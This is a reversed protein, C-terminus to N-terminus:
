SKTQCNKGLFFFSNFVLFIIRVLSNRVEPSECNLLHGLLKVEFSTSYRKEVKLRREILLLVKLVQNRAIFDNMEDILMTRNKLSLGGGDISELGPLLLQNNENEDDVKNQRKNVELQALEDVLRTAQSISRDIFQNTLLNNALETELSNNRNKSPYKKSEYSDLLRLFHHTKLFVKLKSEELQILQNLYLFLFSDIEDTKRLKNVAEDLLGTEAGALLYNIKLRARGKRESFIYGSLFSDVRKVSNVLTQNHNGIDRTLNKMVAEFFGEKCLVPSYNTLVQPDVTELGKPQTPTINELAKGKAFRKMNVSEANASVSTQSDLDLRILHFVLSKIHSIIGQIFRRRNEEEPNIDDYIGLFKRIEIEELSSLGTSIPSIVMMESSREYKRLLYSKFFTSSHFCIGHSLLLLLLVGINYGRM